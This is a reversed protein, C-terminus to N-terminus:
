VTGTSPDAGPAGIASAPVAMGTTPAQQPDAALLHAKRWGGWRYYAAALVVSVLSGLPFSWWVADVGMRERLLSLLPMEPMNM